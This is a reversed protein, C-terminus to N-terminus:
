PTPISSALSPSVTSDPAPLYGSATM